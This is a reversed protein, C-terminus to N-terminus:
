ASVICKRIFLIVDSSRSVSNLIEKVGKVPKGLTTSGKQQEDPPFIHIKRVGCRIVINQVSEILYTMM